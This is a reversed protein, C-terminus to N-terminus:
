HRTQARKQLIAAVVAVALSGVAAFLALGVIGAIDEGTGRALIMLTVIGVVMLGSVALGFYKVYKLLTM